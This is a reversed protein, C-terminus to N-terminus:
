PNVAEEISLKRSKVFSVVTLRHVDLLRAIIAYPVKKRLVSKLDPQRAQSTDSIREVLAWFASERVEENSSALDEGINEFDTAPEKAAKGQLKHLPENELATIDAEWGLRAKGTM